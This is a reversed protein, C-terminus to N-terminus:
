VYAPVRIAAVTLDATASYALSMNGSSDNFRDAPFPGAIHRGGNTGSGPITLVTDPVAITGFGQKEVDNAAITVTRSSANANAFVLLIRGDNAVTDGGSNAAALTYNLGGLASNQVSIAAM